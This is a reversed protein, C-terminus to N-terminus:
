GPQFRGRLREEDVGDQPQLVIHLQQALLVALQSLAQGGAAQVFRKQVQAAPRQCARLRQVAVGQAQADQALRRLPVVPQRQGKGRGHGPLGVGKVRLRAHPGVAQGACAPGNAAARVMQALEFGIAAVHHAAVWVETAFGVRTFAGFTVLLGAQQLVAALGHGEDVGHHRHHHFFAHRAFLQKYLAVQVHGLHLAVVPAHLEAGVHFARFVHALPQCRTAQAKRLHHVPLAPVQAEVPQVGHHPTAGGRLLLLAVAQQALRQRDGDVPFFAVAADEVVHAAHGCVARHWRAVKSRTFALPQPM